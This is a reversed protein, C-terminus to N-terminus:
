LGESPGADPLSVEPLRQRRVVARRTAGFNWAPLPATAVPAAIAVPLGILDCQVFM